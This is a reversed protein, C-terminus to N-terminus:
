IFTGGSGASFPRTPGPHGDSSSVTVAGDGGSGADGGEGAESHPSPAWHDPSPQEPAVPHRELRSLVTQRRAELGPVHKGQGVEKRDTVRLAKTSCRKPGGDGGDGLKPPASSSGPQSPRKVISVAPLPRALGSGLGSPPRSSQDSKAVPPVMPRRKEQAGTPGLDAEEKPQPVPAAIPQAAAAAERAVAVHVDLLTDTADDRAKSESGSSLVEGGARLLSQHFIGQLGELRYYWGLPMGAIGSTGADALLVGNVADVAGTEGSWKTVLHRREVSVTLWGQATRDGRKETTTTKVYEGPRYLPRGYEPYALADVHRTQPQGTVKPPVEAPPNVVAFGGPPPGAWRAPAGGSKSTSGQTASDEGGPPLAPAGGESGKSAAEAARPALDSVRELPARGARQRVRNVVALLEPDKLREGPELRYLRAVDILDEERFTSGATPGELLYYWDSSRGEPTWVDKRLVEDVVTGLLAGVPLGDSGIPGEEPAYRLVPSGRAYRAVSFFPGGTDERPLTSPVAAAPSPPPPADGAAGEGGAEGQGPPTPPSKPASRINALHAESATGENAPGHPAPEYLARAQKM